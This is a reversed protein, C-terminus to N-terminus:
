TRKIGGFTNEREWRTYRIEPQFHIPGKRFDVGAGATFGITTESVTEFPEETSQFEGNTFNTSGSVHRIAVGANGYPHLAIKFYRKMLSHFEWSGATTTARFSDFGFPYSVYRLRKYLADGEFTFGYPLGVEVTPGFTYRQTSFSYNTLDSVQDNLVFADNVPAGAKIGFAITQGAVPGMGFANLLVARLLIRCTHKLTRM